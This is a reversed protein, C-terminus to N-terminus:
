VQTGSLLYPRGVGILGLHIFLSLLQLTEGSVADLLKATGLVALDISLYFFSVRISCSKPAPRGSLASSPIASSSFSGVGM